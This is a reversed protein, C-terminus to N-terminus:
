QNRLRVSGGELNLNVIIAYDSPASLRYGRGQPQWQGAADITAASNQVEVQAAVSEPITLTLAGVAGEINVEIDNQLTGGFDLLYEGGSPWLNITRARTNALGNILVRRVPGSNFDFTNMELQNPATFAMNMTSAAGQLVSLDNISVEGLEVFGEATGTSIALTMPVNALKLNWSNKIDTRVFDYLALMMLDSTSGQHGVFINRGNTIVQPKLLEVNYTVTGEVLAREAGSQLNFQDAVVEFELRVPENDAPLPVLVEQTTTDGVEILRAVWNSVAEMPANAVLGSGLGSGAAVCFSTLGILVILLVAVTIASKMACGRGRGSPHHAPAPTVTPQPAPAPTAPRSVESAPLPQELVPTQPSDSESSLTIPPHAPQLHLALQASREPQLRSPSPTSSVGHFPTSIIGTSSDLGAALEPSLGTLAQMLALVSNFREDADQALAKHLVTSVELPVGEPWRVPMKLPKFHAMMVAPPTDGKFIKEGTIVEYLICGLAYIDSQVTNGKGEWVEPAIYHPTGVITGTETVSISLSHEGVLKALGFDSLLPGRESDILINAPKLDRHLIGCNHAYHLGASIPLMVRLVDPWDLRGQQRLVGELSAGDVLRMVIFLRNEAEHVDYIPVIHPHDLRAITKAERQFRRVWNSDQLLLPRLEKLAVLRDLSTDKGRYVVAFGGEGVADQIEYRGLKQPM